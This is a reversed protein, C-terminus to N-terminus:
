LYLHIYARMNAYLHLFILFNRDYLIHLMRQSATYAPNVSYANFIFECQPKNFVEINKNVCFDFDCQIRQEFRPLREQDLQITDRCDQEFKDCKTWEGRQWKLEHKMEEMKDCLYSIREAIQMKNNSYGEAEEEMKQKAKQAAAHLKSESEQKITALREWEPHVTNCSRCQMPELNDKTETETGCTKCRFGRCMTSDSAYNPVPGGATDNQKQEKNDNQEHRQNFAAFLHTFNTTWM